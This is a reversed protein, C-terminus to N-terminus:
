EERVPRGAEFSELNRQFPAQLEEPVGRNALLLLARRSSAAAGAYDGLEAQAAALTDLMSPREGHSAAVARKALELARRGDRLADDPSTALVYACDNLFALNGPCAAIGEELVQLQDAYRKQAHLFNALEVRPLDECPHRRVAERLYGEAEEAAGTAALLRGLDISYPIFDPDLEVGRRLLPILEQANAGTMKMSTILGFLVPASAPYAERLRDFGSRAVEYRQQIFDDWALSFVRLDPAMAVPDPGELALSALEDGTAVPAGGAAYGLATLQSRTEADVAIAAGQPAAPAESLLRELRARLRAVIEPRASALDNAEGPDRAVDFLQPDVKHIYKWDGERVFRLVSAGFLRRPEWTEGYGTLRLDPAEGVLLARLSTGQVEPLPPLGLFDLITPAIDITRVLSRVRRGAALGDPGWFILPVRVTTDYVFFSHTDEDHQGLGEGHDSTVVLLTRDRLGLRVLEAVILGIQEDVYRVEALYPNAIQEGFAAPAEYPAHADFYHLWLFFPGGQQGRLFELGRRTIDSAPREQRKTVTEGQADGGGGATKLEVAFSGLDRYQDFGQDLKTHRGIVPAAIEAHTRYGRSRLVEALTLNEDPLASGANSRVGHAYPQKGTLISAHAPLTNPASTVVQEFLVGESALRDLHPSAAVRQGYAGLADARVTDMTVLVVNRPTAGFPLPERVVRAADAPTGSDGPSRSDCGAGGLAAVAVATALLRFGARAM